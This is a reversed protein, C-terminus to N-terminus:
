STSFPSAVDGSHQMEGVVAWQTASIGTVRLWSGALGGKTTGNMDFSLHTSGNGTAFSLTNTTDTDIMNVDGILFDGSACDVSYAGSALAATVLFEYELGAAAAPLTFAAGDTKDFICLAGSDAAALAVTAGDAIVHRSTPVFGDSGATVVKSAAITGATVGDVYGLETSSLEDIADQLEMVKAPLSQQDINTNKTVM